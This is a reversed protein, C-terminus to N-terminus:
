RSTSRAEEVEMVTLAQSANLRLGEDVSAFLSRAMTLYVFAGFSALAVLLLGATWLAFRFRLTQWL